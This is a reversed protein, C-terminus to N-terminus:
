SAAFDGDAAQPCPIVLRNAKNSPGEVNVLWDMPSAKNSSFGTKSLPANLHPYGRAVGWVCVCVCCPCPTSAVGTPQGCESSHTHHLDAMLPFSLAMESHAAASMQLYESSGTNVVVSVSFLLIYLPCRVLGQVLNKERKLRTKQPFLRMQDHQRGKLGM